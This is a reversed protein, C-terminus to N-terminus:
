RYITKISGWTSRTTATPLCAIDPSSSNRPNPADAVFDTGNEDSDKNHDTFNCIRFIAAVASPAPANAAGERCNATGGYGVFDVIAGGVPCTGSLAVTSNTLALKGATASMNIATSSTDPGPVAAGNAGSSALQVLYYGKAPITGTVPLNLKSWSSGTASAYQLSWGALSIPSSSRNYLEVYDNLYAAGANGGAGYLQSIVITTSGAAQAVPAHLGIAALLLAVATVRRM